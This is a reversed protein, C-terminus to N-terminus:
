FIYRKTDFVLMIFTIKRYFLNSYVTDGYTLWEFFLFFVSILQNANTFYELTYMKVHLWISKIIRSFSFYINTHMIVNQTLHNNRTKLKRNEKRMMGKIQNKTWEKDNQRHKQTSTYLSQHKSPNPEIWNLSLIRALSFSLVFIYHIHENNTLFNLNELM